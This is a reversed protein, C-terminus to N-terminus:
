LATELFTELWDAEPILSPAKVDGIRAGREVARRQFSEWPRSVPVISLEDLQGMRRAYAYQPNRSLYAEVSAAVSELQIESCEDVVLIYRPRGRMTPLLMRFGVIGELCDSVFEDTLKEGVMDSVLGNRGVFRLVPLTNSYGECAVCDGTRYRYLGGSSTMIVEYREGSLLENALRTRGDPSLFEFFGSDAALMPLGGHNPVTVVGETALLGKGQFVAYPIRKRLENFFPKSSGDAWCSVLRLDPWLSRADKNSTYENLRLLAPADSPLAQGRIEGGQRLLTKLEDVHQEFADLLALFFTPSWVSILELDDRRILWYLTVLQWDYVSSLHGVWPSVASLEAFAPLAEDGLYAGDPLGVPIGGCTKEPLRTAPSIAWYACGSGLGYEKRADALWPLIATRFDLLSAESYPILKNGGTSGGTREFAIPVGEFLVNGEGSAVRDIWPALTEYTVLPVRDRYEETSRIQDFGYQRGFDTDRNRELCARLWAWQRAMVDGHCRLEEGLESLHQWASTM